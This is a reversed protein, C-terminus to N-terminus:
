NGLNLVKLKGVDANSVMLAALAALLHSPDKELTDVAVAFEQQELHSGDLTPLDRQICIQMENDSVSSATVCVKNNFGYTIVPGPSKPAEGLIERYDPNMILVAGPGAQSICKCAKDSRDVAVIVDMKPQPGEIVGDVDIVQGAHGARAMLDELIKIAERRKEGLVGIVAM